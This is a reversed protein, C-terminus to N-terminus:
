ARDWAGCGRVAFCVFFSRKPRIREHHAALSEGRGLPCLVAANRAAPEPGSANPHVARTGRWPLGLSVAVRKVEAEAPMPASGMISACGRPAWSMAAFSRRWCLLTLSDPGLAPSGSKAARLTASLLPSAKSGRGSLRSVRDVPLARLRELLDDSPLVVMPCASGFQDCVIHVAM